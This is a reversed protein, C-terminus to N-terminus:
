TTKQRRRRNRSKRKKQKRNLRRIENWVQKERLITEPDRNDTHARARAAAKQYNVKSSL